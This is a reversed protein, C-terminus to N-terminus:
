AGPPTTTEPEYRVDIADGDGWNEPPVEVGNLIVLPMTVGAEALAAIAVADGLARMRDLSLLPANRAARYARIAAERSGHEQTLADITFARIAKRRQHSNM